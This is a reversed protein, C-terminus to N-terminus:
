CGQPVVALFNGVVTYLNYDRSTIFERCADRDASAEPSRLFAHFAEQSEWQAVNTVRKGDFSAHFTASIFGPFASVTNESFKALHDLLAQQKEPEVTFVNILTVPGNPKDPAKM